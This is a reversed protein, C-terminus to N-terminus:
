IDVNKKEVICKIEGADLHRFCDRGTLNEAFFKVSYRTEDRTSCAEDM